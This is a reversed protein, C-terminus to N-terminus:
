MLSISLLSDIKNKQTRLFDLRQVLSEMDYSSSNGYDKSYNGFKYLPITKEGSKDDNISIKGSKKCELIVVDGKKYYAADSTKLAILNNDFINKAIFYTPSKEEVIIANIKVLGGTESEQIKKLEETKEGLEKEIDKYKMLYSIKKSLLNLNSSLNLKEKEMDSGPFYNVINLAKETDNKAEIYKKQTNLKKASSKFKLYETEAAYYLLKMLDGHLKPNSNEDIKNLYKLATKWDDRYIKQILNASLLNIKEFAKFHFKGNEYKRIFQEYRLIQNEIAFVDESNDEREIAYYERDEELYIYFYALFALAMFIVAVLSYSITKKYFTKRKLAPIAEKIVELKANVTNHGSEDTYSLLNKYYIEASEFDKDEFAKEADKLIKLRINLLVTAKNFLKKAEIEDPQVNLIRNCENIAESYMKKNVFYEANILINEINFIRNDQEADQLKYGCGYVACGKNEYWCETHYVSLCSPCTIFDEKSKIRSQCFQCIKNQQIQSNNSEV